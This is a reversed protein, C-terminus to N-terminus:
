EGTRIKRKNRSSQIVLADYAPGHLDLWDGVFQAIARQCKVCINLDEHLKDVPNRGAWM